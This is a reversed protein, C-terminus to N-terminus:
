NQWTGSKGNWLNGSGTRVHVELFVVVVFLFVSCFVECVAGLFSGFCVFFWM